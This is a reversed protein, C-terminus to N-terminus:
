SYSYTTRDNWVFAFSNDGEAYMFKPYDGTEDICKIQWLDEDEAVGAKAAGIFTKGPITYDDILKKFWNEGM